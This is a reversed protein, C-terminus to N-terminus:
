THTILGYIITIVLTVIIFIFGGFTPTKAKKQFQELAYESVEQNADKKKLFSIWFPMIICVTIFSLLFPITLSFIINLDM